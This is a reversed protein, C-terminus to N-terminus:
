SLWDGPLSEFDTGRSYSIATVAVGFRTLNSLMVVFVLLRRNKSNYDRRKALVGFAVILSLDTPFCRSMLFQFQHIINFM